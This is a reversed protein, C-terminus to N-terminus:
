DGAGGYITDGGELGSLTDNGDEGLLQDAGDNGFIRDDGAEGNIVDVLQSGFVVDDGAGALVLISNIALGPFTTTTVRSLDIRNDNPGATIQIGAVDAARIGTLVGNFAVFSDAGSFQAGIVIDSFRGSADDVRLVGEADLLIPQPLAYRQVHVSNEAVGALLFRGTADVALSPAFADTAVTGFRSATAAGIPSDGDFWRVVIDRWTGQGTDDGEYEVVNVDIYQQEWAVGIQGFADVALGPNNLNLSSIRDGDVDTYASFDYGDNVIVPTTLGADPNWQRFALRDTSDETITMGPESVTDLEFKHDWSVIPNGESDVVIDHGYIRASSVHAPDVDTVYEYDDWAAVETAPGMAGGSASFKQVYLRATSLGWMLYFEGDSAIAAYRRSTNLTVSGGYANNAVGVRPAGDLSLGSMAYRRFMLDGAQNLWTVLLRGGANSVVSAAGSGKDTGLSVNLPLADVPAGDPRYRRMYIDSSGGGSGRWIIAYNGQEDIASQLHSPTLSTQGLDALRPVSVGGNASILQVYVGAGEPGDGNWVIVSQGKANTAIWPSSQEDGPNAYVQFGAGASPNTVEEPATVDIVVAGYEFAGIDAAEGVLRQALTTSDGRQDGDLGFTAIVDNSGTDRALSDPLVAHTATVGGYDGLPALLPDIKSGLTGVLNGDVLPDNTFGM